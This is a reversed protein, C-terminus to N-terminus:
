KKEMYRKYILENQQIDRGGIVIYNDSSIFWHFKEFWIPKRIERVLNKVKLEKM